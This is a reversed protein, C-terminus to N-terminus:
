QSDDKKLALAIDRLTSSIEEAFEATPTVREQSWGEIKGALEELFTGDPTVRGIDHAIENLRKAAHNPCHKAFSRLWEADDNWYSM